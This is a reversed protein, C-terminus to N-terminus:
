NNVLRAVGPSLLSSIKNYPVTCHPAGAAYFSIEYPQFKFEVGKPTLSAAGNVDFENVPVLLMSELMEARSCEFYQKALADAVINRVKQLNGEPFFQTIKRGTASDFTINYDYTMGHAGGLYEEIEVEYLVYADTQADLSIEYSRTLEPPTIGDDSAKEFPQAESALDAMQNDLAAKVVKGGDNVLSLDKIDLINCIERRVSDMLIVNGEVPYDVSISARYTCDGAKGSAKEAFEKVTLVNDKVSDKTVTLSDVAARENKSGNSCSVVLCAVFAAAIMSAIKM